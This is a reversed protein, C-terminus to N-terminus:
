SSSPGPFLDDEFKCTLQHDDYTTIVGLEMGKRIKLRVPTWTKHSKTYKKTPDLDMKTATKQTQVGRHGRFCWNIM